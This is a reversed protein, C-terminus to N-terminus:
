KKRQFTPNLEQIIEQIIKNVNLILENDSGDLTSSTEKIKLGFWASIYKSKQANDWDIENKFLDKKILQNILVAAAIKPKKRKIFKGNEDFWEGETDQSLKKILIDYHTPNKLASKFTLLKPESTLQKSKDVEDLLELIKEINKRRNERCFPGVYLGPVSGCKKYYFSFIEILRKTAIYRDTVETELYEDLIAKYRFKPEEELKSIIKNEEQTLSELWDNKTDYVFYETNSM